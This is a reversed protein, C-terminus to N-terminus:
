FAENLPEPSMQQGGRSGESRSIYHHSIKFVPTIINNSLFQPHMIITNCRVYTCPMLYQRICDMLSSQPTTNNSFNAPYKQEVLYQIVIICVIETNVLNVRM